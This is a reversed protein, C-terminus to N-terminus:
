VSEGDIKAHLYDNSMLKVRETADDFSQSADAAFGKLITRELPQRTKPM